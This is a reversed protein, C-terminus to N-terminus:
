EDAVTERNLYAALRARDDESVTSFQLAVQFWGDRDEVPERVVKAIAEVPARRPLSLSVFMRDGPRLAERLRVKVGGASADMTFGSVVVPQGDLTWQMQIPINVRHRRHRRVPVSTLRVNIHGTNWLDAVLGELDVARPGVICTLLVPMGARLAPVGDIPLLAIFPTSLGAIQCPVIAGPLGAVPVTQLRVAQGITPLGPGDAAWEDLRSIWGVPAHSDARQDM